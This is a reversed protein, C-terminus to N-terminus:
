KQSIKTASGRFLIGDPFVALTLQSIFCVHSYISEPFIVRIFVLSHHKLSASTIGIRATGRKLFNLNVRCYQIVEVSVM